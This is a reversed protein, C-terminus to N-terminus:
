TTAPTNTPSPPMCGSCSWRRRRTSCSCRSRRPAGGRRVCLRVAAGAPPGALRRGVHRVLRAPHQGASLAVLERADRRPDPGGIQPDLRGHAEVLKDRHARGVHFFSKPSYYVFREMAKPGFAWDVVPEGIEPLCYPFALLFERATMDDYAFREILAASGYEETLALKGVSVYNRAIWPGVVLVFGLAFAAVNIWASRRKPDAVFRAGILILVPLALALVQFSPRALCLLGLMLGALAFYRRKSSNWGLAMALMVLSYLSFTLSETMVFAFLDADPLLAATALVGTLWFVATSAFMIEAALAVGLM